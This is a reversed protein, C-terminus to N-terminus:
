RSFELGHSNLADDLARLRSATEELAEGVKRAAHELDEISDEKVPLKFKVVDKESIAPYAIGVNHREMQDLVFRSVLLRRLLYPDIKTPRLVALGTTCIAGDLSKPM